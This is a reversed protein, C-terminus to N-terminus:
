TRILHPLVATAAGWMAVVATVLGRALRGLRPMFTGGMTATTM